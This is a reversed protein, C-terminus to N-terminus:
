AGRGPARAALRILNLSKQYFGVAADYDMRAQTMKMMQEELVVQNGDLTTESDPEAVPKWSGAHGAAGGIRMDGGMHAPNTQAPAVPQLTGSGSAAANLSGQFTFGKLDKPVFGPTDANAVNQAILQQRQNLYGMRGKLMAFLPIDTLNM